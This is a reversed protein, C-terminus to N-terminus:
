VLPMVGAILDEVPEDDTSYDVRGAEIRGRNLVENILRLPHRQSRAIRHPAEPQAGTLAGHIGMELSQLYAAIANLPTRLEHSMVALFTSKARNAEEAEGRLLDAEESRALLDENIVRLEESAAELEAAQEQLQQQQLELE